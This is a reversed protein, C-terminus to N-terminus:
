DHYMKITQKAIVEWDFNAKAMALANAGFDDLTGNYFATEAELFLKAIADIDLNKFSWGANFDVIYRDMSTMESVICPLGLSVAEIVSTPLGENRSTHVFVKMNKLAKVKDEGFKKGHFIVDSSVGAVAAKQAM